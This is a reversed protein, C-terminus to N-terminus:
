VERLIKNEVYNVKLKNALNEIEESVKELYREAEKGSKGVVDIKYKGSGLYTFKVDFNEDKKISSFIKKILDVGNEKYTYLTIIKSIKFKSREVIENLQEEILKKWEEKIGLEDLIKKDEKYEEILRHLDGLKEIILNGVEKYADELSKNLKNAVFELIKEVRNNLKWEELKRKEEGRSVRKLSLDIHGKEKNVRMVKCVYYRGEKLFDRLNRVFRSSVESIHMMGELNEYEILKLFASHELLRSVKCIVLEGVEPYGKKKYLM